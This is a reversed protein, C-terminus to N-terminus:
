IFTTGFNDVRREHHLNGTAFAKKDHEAESVLREHLTESDARDHADNWRSKGLLSESTQGWFAPSEALISPGRARGISEPSLPSDNYEYSTQSSSELEYFANGDGDGVDCNDISESDIGLVNGCSSYISEPRSGLSYVICDNKASTRAGQPVDEMDLLTRTDVEAARSARSDAVPKVTKQLLNEPADKVPQQQATITLENRDLMDVPLFEDDGAKVADDYAYPGPGIDQAYVSATFPSKSRKPSVKPEPLYSSDNDEDLSLTVTPLPWNARPSPEADGAPLSIPSWPTVFSGASSDLADNRAHAASINNKEINNISDSNAGDNSSFGTVMGTWTKPGTTVPTRPPRWLQKESDDDEKETLIFAHTSKACATNQESEEEAFLTDVHVNEASSELSVKETSSLSVPAMPSPIPSANRSIPMPFSNLTFKDLSGTSISQPLDLVPPARPSFVPTRRKEADATLLLEDEMVGSNITVDTQAVKEKSDVGKTSDHLRQGRELAPSELLSLAPALRRKNSYLLGPAKRNSNGYFSPQQFVITNSDNCAGGIESRQQSSDFPSQLGHPVANRPKSKPSSMDVPYQQEARARLSSKEDPSEPTSSAPRWFPASQLSPLPRVNFSSQPAIGPSAPSRKSAPFYDRSRPLQQMSKSTRLQQNHRVQHVEQGHSLSGSFDRPTKNQGGSGVKNSYTGPKLSQSPSYDAHIMQHNMHSRLDESKSLQVPSFDQRSSEPQQRQRPDSFFEDHASYRPGNRSPFHAGQGKHNHSNQLREHRPHCNMDQGADHGPEQNACNRQNSQDLHKRQCNLECAPSQSHDQQFQDLSEPQSSELNTPYCPSQLSSQSKENGCEGDQQSAERCHPGMQEELWSKELEDIKAAWSRRRPARISPEHRNAIDHTKHNHNPTSIGDMRVKSAECSSISPSKSVSNARHAEFTNQLQEVPTPVRQGAAGNSATHATNDFHPSQKAIGSKRNESECEEPRSSVSLSPSPSHNSVTSPPTIARLQQDDALAASSLDSIETNTSSSTLIDNESVSPATEYKASHTPSNSGPRSGAVLPTSPRSSSIAKKPRYLQRDAPSFTANFSTYTNIWPSSLASHPTSPRSHSSSPRDNYPKAIEPLLDHNLNSSSSSAKREGFSLESAGNGSTWPWSPVQLAHGHTRKTTKSKSTSAAKDKHLRPPSNPRSSSVSTTPFAGVQGRVYSDDALFVQNFIDREVEVDEDVLSQKTKDGRRFSFLGM